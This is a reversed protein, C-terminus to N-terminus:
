AYVAATDLSCSIAFDVAAYLRCDGISVVVLAPSQHRKSRGNRLAATRGATDWLVIM